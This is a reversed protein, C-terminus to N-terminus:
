EANSEWALVAYGRPVSPGIRAIALRSAVAGGLGRATASIRATIVVSTDSLPLPSALDPLRRAAAAVALAVVPDGGDADPVAPGFLTLHPRLAELLEPTMGRVRGLEEISHLPEGPPGYNLGAALYDTNIGSLSRPGKKAGVWEAISTAIEAAQERNSAVADLLAELLVPSALNPNIRAAENALRLTVQSNGVQVAHTSGDLPWRADPQPDLQNFIAQHIAGDAAAQAAANAALNGAIRLETRGSATLHVVILAILVFVWLVVILAFGRSGSAVLWPSRAAV